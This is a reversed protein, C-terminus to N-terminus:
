KQSEVKAQKRNKIATIIPKAYCATICTVALIAYHCIYVLWGNDENFFPIGDMPPSAVYMFNINSIGDYVLSNIYMSVFFMILLFKLSNFYDKVEFKIEKSTFLYIAFIVLAVHYLFYQFTIPWHNLASYVPLVMAAIGGILCSPAMFSLIFRKLKENKSITIVAIFIIQISCLHFPLDSKPLIGGLKDENIATYFVVKVIESIIGVIFLTKCINKFKMKRAFITGVVILAISIALVIIHKLGFTEYM